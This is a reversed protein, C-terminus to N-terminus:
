QRWRPDDDAWEIEDDPDVDPDVHDADSHLRNLYPGWLELFAPNVNEMSFQRSGTAAPAPPGSVVPPPDPISGPDSWGREAITTLRDLMWAVGGAWGRGEASTDTVALDRLQPYRREVDRVIARLMDEPEARHRADDATPEDTRLLAALSQPNLPDEGGGSRHNPTSM